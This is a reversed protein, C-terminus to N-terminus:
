KEEGERRKAELVDAGSQTRRDFVFGLDEAARVRIGYRELGAAVFSRELHPDLGAAIFLERPYAFQARYGREAAIVKGWLSVTGIVGPDPLERAVALLDELTRFAWYGCRCGSEPAEHRGLRLCQAALAKGPEWKLGSKWTACPLLSFSREGRRTMEVAWARWGILPEIGDPAPTLTSDM